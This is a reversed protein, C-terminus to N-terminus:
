AEKLKKEDSKRAKSKLIALVSKVSPFEGYEKEM